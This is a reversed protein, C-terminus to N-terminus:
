ADGTWIEFSLDMRYVLVVEDFSADRYEPNHICDVSGDTGLTGRIGGVDTTTLHDRIADGLSKAQAYSNGFVSIAFTVPRLTTGGEITMEDPTSVRTFTACPYLSDPDKPKGTATDFGPEPVFDPYFRGQMLGNVTSDGVLEARLNEELIV